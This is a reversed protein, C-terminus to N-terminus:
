CASGQGVLRWLRPYFNIDWATAQHQMLLSTLWRRQNLHTPPSKTLPKTPKWQFINTPTVLLYTWDVASPYVRPNWQHSPRPPQVPPTNVMVLGGSPVISPAALPPLSPTHPPMLPQSKQTAVAAQDQLRQQQFAELAQDIHPQLHEHDRSYTLLVGGSIHPHLDVSFHPKSLGRLAETMIMQIPHLKVRPLVKLVSISDAQIHRHYEIYQQTLRSDTCIVRYQHPSLHQRAPKSHFVQILAARVITAQKPTTFIHVAQLPSHPWHVYHPLPLLLFVLPVGLKLDGHMKQSIDACNTWTGSGLLWAICVLPSQPFGFPAATPIQQTPLSKGRRRAKFASISGEHLQRHDEIYKWTLPSHICIVRYQHPSLGQGEVSSHFFQFLADQVLAACQPTTFIHVAQLPYHQRHGPLLPLPQLQLFLPVDPYADLPFRHQLRFSLRDCNNWEGSGLLWAICALPTAIIPPIDAYYMSPPPQGTGPLPHALM